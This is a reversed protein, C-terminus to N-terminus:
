LSFTSVKRSPRRRSRGTLRGDRYSAGIVAGIRTKCPSRGASFRVGRDPRLVKGDGFEPALEALIAKMASLVVTEYVNERATWYAKAPWGRFM